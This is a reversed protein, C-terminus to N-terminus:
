FDSTDWFKEKDADDDQRFERRTVGPQDLLQDHLANPFWTPRVQVPMEPAEALITSISRTCLADWVPGARQARAFIFRATEMPVEFSQLTTWYTARTHYDVFVGRAQPFMGYIVDHQEPLRPHAFTGAPDFVVVQDAHIMLASHAGNGSGVNFSTFVEIKPIGPNPWAARAVDTQDAFVRPKSSCGMLLAPAGM